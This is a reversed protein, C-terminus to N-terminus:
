VARAFVVVNDLYHGTDSDFPGGCTVLRLERRSTPGYVLSAPFATKEYERVAYIRFRVGHGNPWAIRVLSGPSVQGLRYFVAPGDESDVHGVVVAAGREGPRPGLRYWGAVSFDTPVELTGDPNLGLRVLQASVGIAPIRVATPAGRSIKPRSVARDARAQSLTGSIHVPPSSGSDLRSLGFAALGALLLVVSLADVALVSRARTRRPESPAVPDKRTSRV